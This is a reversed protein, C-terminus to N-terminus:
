LNSCTPSSSDPFMLYTARIPAVVADHFQQRFQSFEFDKCVDRGQFCFRVCKEAAYGYSDGAIRYVEDLSSIATRYVDLISSQLLVSRNTCLEILFVGLAFITRNPILDELEFSPQNERAVISPSFIDSVCPYQSLIERGSRTREIFMAVQKQYWQESFWPSGGLHLVSWSISAAIGYKQKASLSLWPNQQQPQTHVLSLIPVVKVINPSNTQHHGLFFQRDQDDDPIKLIGELKCKTNLASCLCAIEIDGSAAAGALTQSSTPSAAPPPTSTAPSIPPPRGRPKSCAAKFQVIKSRISLSPSHTRAPPSSPPVLLGVTPEVLQALSELTFHLERWSVSQQPTSSPHYSIAVKFPKTADAEYPWDLSIAAEHPTSCVCRFGSKLARHLSSLCQRISDCRQASFRRKLELVKVSGDEAPLEATELAKRLDENWHRLDDIVKNRKRTSLSHKVRRWEWQITDPLDNPKGNVVDIELKKLLTDTVNEMNQIIVMLSHSSAPFKTELCERLEDISPDTGLGINSLTKQLQKHQLNLRARFTEISIHYNHFAEFPEAYRELAWIALPIGALVLGAAEAM